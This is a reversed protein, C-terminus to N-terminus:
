QSKEEPLKTAFFKKLQEQCNSCLDKYVVNTGFDLGITSVTLNKNTETSKGCRDCREYKSM